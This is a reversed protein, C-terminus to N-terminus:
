SRDTSEESRERRATRLWHTMTGLPVGIRDALVRQRVGGETLDLLLKRARRADESSRHLLYRADAFRDDLNAEDVM